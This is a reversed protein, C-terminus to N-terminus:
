SVHIVRHARGSRGTGRHVGCAQRGAAGARSGPSPNGAHHTKTRRVDREGQQDRQGGAGLRRDGRTVAHGHRALELAVRGAGAGVDLVPGAEAAALERWLPLDAAYGGCEIDHWIVESM